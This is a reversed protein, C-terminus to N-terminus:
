PSSSFYDCVCLFVVLGGTGETRGSTWIVIIQMEM